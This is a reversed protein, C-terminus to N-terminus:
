ATVRQNLSALLSECAARDASELELVGGDKFQVSLNLVKISVQARGSGTVQAASVQDLDAAVALDKAVSFANLGFLLLRRDTLAAIMKPPLGGDAATDQISIGTIGRIAGYYGERKLTGPLNVMCSSIPTEGPQLERTLAKKIFIDRFAM